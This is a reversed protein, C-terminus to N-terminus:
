RRQGPAGGALLMKFYEIQKRVDYGYRAIMEYEELCGAWMENKTFIKLLSMNGWGESELEKLIDVPPTKGAAPMISYVFVGEKFYEQTVRKKWFGDFIERQEKTWDLEHYPAHNRIAERYNILLHTVNEARLLAYLDDADKAKRLYAMLPQENNEISYSIFDREMRFPRSEGIFLVKADRPLNKNIWNIAAYPPNPYSPQSVSLFEDLAARKAFYGDLGHGLSMAFVALFNAALLAVILWKFIKFRESVFYAAWGLCVSLAVFLPLMYRYAPTGLYWVAYGACFVVLSHKVLRDVKRFFLLCPLLLLFVPGIYNLSDGGSLTLTWPSSLLGTLKFGFVNLPANLLSGGGAGVIKLNEGGLLTHFFPQVPNGTFVYNKLLWPLTCLFVVGSYLSLRKLARVPGYNRWEHVALSVALGTVWFAATYKMGASIGAFASFLLFRGTGGERLWDLYAVYALAFFFTVGVDNGCTWSNMAFVPASCLILAAFLAAKANYLRKVSFYILLVTLGGMLCHILKALIENSLSLALMYLMSLNLPFNSHSLFRMPALHHKLLYYGPAALHYVLSDYFTEPVLAMVFNLALFLAGLFVLAKWGPGLGFVEAIGDKLAGARFNWIKIRFAAV